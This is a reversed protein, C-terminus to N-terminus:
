FLEITEVEYVGVKLYMVAQHLKLQQSQNQLYFKARKQFNTRLLTLSIKTMPNILNVQFDHLNLTYDIIM